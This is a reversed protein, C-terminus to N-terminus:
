PENTTNPIGGVQYVQLMFGVVADVQEAIMTEDAGAAATLMVQAGQGTLRNNYDRSIGAQPALEGYLLLYPLGFIYAPADFLPARSNVLAVGLPGDMTYGVEAYDLGKWAVYTVLPAGEGYGLYVAGLYHPFLAPQTFGMLKV